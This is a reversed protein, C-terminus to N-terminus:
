RPVASWVKRSDMDCFSWTQLKHKIFLNTAKVMQQSVFGGIPNGVPFVTNLIHAHLPTHFLDLPPQLSTGHHSTVYPYQM